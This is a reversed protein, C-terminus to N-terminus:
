GSSKSKLIDYLQELVPLQGPFIKERASEITFWQARDVEPFFNTKGSRPPWELEFENSKVNSTDIDGEVAWIYVTKGGKVSVPELCIFEGSVPSGTEEFFERKAAELFDENDNLEGKPISWSHMDKNVFFPGGPHVLMFLFDDSFKKFLLIGASIKNM